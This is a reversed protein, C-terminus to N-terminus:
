SHARLFAFYRDPVDDFELDDGCTGCKLRPPRVHGDELLLSQKELLRLDDRDCSDCRYPAELSVVTGDGISMPVMAAQSVFAMSCHRFSYKKGKLKALFDCWARVGASSIYRVGRMYFDIRTVKQLRHSLTAFDTIETFDGYLSVTVGGDGIEQIDYLCLRELLLRTKMPLNSFALGAATKGPDEDATRTWQVTADIDPYDEGDHLLRAVVEQGRALKKDVVIGAGGASINEVTGKVPSEAGPLRLELTVGMRRERRLPLGAVQAIHHYFDDSHVPVALVDDCGSQELNRLAERSIVSSLVMMVHVDRLAEDAKLRRCLEYGSGGALDVDIIAIQPKTQQIKALAEAYSTAVTHEVDLRQFPGTGLHRFVEANNTTVVRLM